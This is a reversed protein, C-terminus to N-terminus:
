LNIFITFIIILGMMFSMILSCIVSQIEQRKQSQKYKAFEAGRCEFYEIPM